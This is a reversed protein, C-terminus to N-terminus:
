DSQVTWEVSFAFCIMKLIVRFVYVFNFWSFCDLNTLCNFLCKQIIVNIIADKLKHLPIEDEIDVELSTFLLRTFYEVLGSVM